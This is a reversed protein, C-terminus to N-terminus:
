RWIDSLLIQTISLIILGYCVLPVAHEEESPIPLFTPSLIDRSGVKESIKPCCIRGKTADCTIAEKSVNENISAEATEETEESYSGCEESIRCDESSTCSPMVQHLLLSWFTLLFIVVRRNDLWLLM